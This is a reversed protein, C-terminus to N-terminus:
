LSILVRTLLTALGSSLLRPHFYQTAASLPSATGLIENEGQFGVSGHWEAALSFDRIPWHGFWTGAEGSLKLNHRKQQTVVKHEPTKRATM